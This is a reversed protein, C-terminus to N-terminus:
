LSSAFASTRRRALAVQEAVPAPPGKKAFYLYTGYDLGVRGATTGLVTAVSKPSAGANIMLTAIVHRCDYPSRDALGAEAALPDWVDERWARWSGPPWHTGSPSPFVFDRPEVPQDFSRRWCELDEALHEILPVTRKRARWLRYRRLLPGLRPIREMRWPRTPAMVDIHDPSVDRWRLGVVEGPQLGAYALVSIITADRLRGQSLLKARLREVTEVSPAKTHDWYHVKDRVRGVSRKYAIRANVSGGNEDDPVHILFREALMNIVVDPNRAAIFDDDFTPMHLFAFRGFSEALLKVMGWAYSDGVLVCSGTADPCATAVLSGTGEIRTDEAPLASANRVWYITTADDHDRDLKFRLDGPVSMEFFILDEERMRRIPMLKGVEQAIRDYAVFAGYENWHTDVPFCVLRDRSAHRLDDLLYLPKVPSEAEALHRCLQLVPRDDAVRVSDPLKEPYIAHTDPVITFLYNAGARALMRHRRELVTRWRELDEESLRIEGTHQGLVDNTDGALFLWGDKGRLVKGDQVFRTTALTETSEDLVGDLVAKEGLM